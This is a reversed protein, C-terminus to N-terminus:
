VSERCSARGIGERNEIKSFIQIDEGGNEVLVRRIHLVDAAKRVFSAAVIDVEMSAGFKLDEIDQETLSPLNISVGPVNVGKHNGIMGTNAVVCDIRKGKIDNVLLGVLGDDILITDNIKVDKYLEEYTVSCITEDGVVEEGCVVTFKAGEKLEVKGAAFNGTRIEPGKTDLIIAIHKNHEQRLEKVLDMRIKHEAHDGHSFNHRSADMGAEILSKIIERNDSAPGVTCIIKTKKM